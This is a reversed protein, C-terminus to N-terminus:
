YLRQVFQQTPEQLLDQPRDGGLTGLGSSGEIVSSAVEEGSTTKYLSYKVSIKDPIGSWETARDEWHLIIPQCVYDHGKVKASELAAPLDENREAVTVKDTYILFAAQVATATSLGSGYYTTSGYAGDKPLAVYVSASPSLQATPSRVARVAHSDACGALLIVTLIGAWLKM